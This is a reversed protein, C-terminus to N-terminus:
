DKSAVNLLTDLQKLAAPATSQIGNALVKGSRDMVILQPLKGDIPKSVSPVAGTAEYEVARWSFGMEKAFSETDPMPETTLYIIEFEPHKPKMEQYYKVLKPTFGRTISCGSSGRLFVLYRPLANTDLPEPKGTVSSLLKGELETVVRGQVRLKEAAQQAQERQREAAQQEALYRPSAGAESEVFQHAQAMLDTAQPVVNFSIKLKEAVVLLRDPKVERLLVQEGQRVTAGGNMNFTRSLAVKDPWLEKRQALTTYTLDRQKPTLKAYAERAVALVDTEDPEAAFDLRGDTTSLEVENAKFGVVTVKQGAPVTAGSQFKMTEKVSCQAPWLEPRRALDSWNLDEAAVATEALSAALLLCAIKM